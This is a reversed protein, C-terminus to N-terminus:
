ADPEVHLDGAREDPRAHAQVDPLTGALDIANRAIRGVDPEHAIDAHPESM